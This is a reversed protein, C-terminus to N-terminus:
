PYTVDSNQYKKGDFFRTFLLALYFVGFLADSIIFYKRM